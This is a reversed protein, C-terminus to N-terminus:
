FSALDASHKREKHDTCVPATHSVRKIVSDACIFHFFGRSALNKKFSRHIQTLNKMWRVDAAKFSDDSQRFLLPLDSSM